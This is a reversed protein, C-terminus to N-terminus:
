DAAQARDPRVGRYGTGYPEGPQDEEDSGGVALEAAV